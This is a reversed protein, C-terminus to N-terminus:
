CAFVYCHKMSGMSSHAGVAKFGRMAVIHFAPLACRCQVVLVCRMPCMDPVCAVSTYTPNHQDGMDNSMGLLLPM